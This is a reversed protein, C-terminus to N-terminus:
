WGGALSVHMDLVDAKSRDTNEQTLSLSPPYIESALVMFNEINLSTCDDRYRRFFKLRGAEESVRKAACNLM